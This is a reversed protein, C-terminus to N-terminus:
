FNVRFGFQFARPLGPAFSGSGLGYRNSRNRPTTGNISGAAGSLINTLRNGPPDYNGVNFVNFVELMPEIKVREGINIVRSIRIDTSSFSDLGVQDAPAPSIPNGANITAGLARLQDATFLGSSILAQAAPTFGGVQGNFAAILENLRKVDVDRSFSGRNTGPLPDQTTGDGNLDTFYIEGLGSAFPLIISSALPSSVRTIANLRINWPLDTLFSVSLQHTRDLNSPGFFQTPADNNITLSLSGVDPDAGSSKFRSLAYSVTTFMNKLPGHSGLRGRLNVTLANYSVIGVPAIVGMARFNPNNGQFAFGDLASGADLGFFAYDQIAAGQAIACNIAAATAAAPCGFADNTIAIADRAIAVNLTDAAGIRNLDVIQGFHIGRNRIFDVSLVLGSRIEHQAGINFQMGYPRKYDNYILGLNTTLIQNFLPPVGSPPFSAALNATVHQYVNQIRQAAAITNRLPQGILNVGGTCNGPTSNFHSVDFLCNGTAPDTLVPAGAFLVQVVNGLGPPLSLTRDFLQNNILNTDYFIGAGGRIVTKGSGWPDWAFGVQPAFADDPRHIFGGLVPDFEALKDTRRLDNNAINSDFNYRLGANISLRPNVKWVDQVYGAFRHNQYGGFPLGHTPIESSFGLGNGVAISTLPFNLPDGAGGNANAFSISSATFNSRIRPALGFFNGFGGIIIRNYAAGFRITHNGKVVSGDYKVQKNDQFTAQPANLNPGVQVTSIINVLIPNGAPDLTVPTGAAENADVVFNDFNLYSFRVSHTWRSASFDLGAVHSNTNNQNAFASLSNGGFGTVGRNDNHNFRYFAHLRDTITWDLRGGFLDEDLPVAFNGTFQPFAPVSTFQQGDQNNREYDLHWFLKNKVVFGGVRGGFIQRDFPPKELTPQTKNLRTDAAFRSDRFFGFGSGHIENSGSRTVINIAGSSTLDTSVDLGSRSVQFEQISENSLNATTTGVTEDTIDVGDVQIRTARGGRGGISVGVFQNKTVDFDGGDRTQVGPELQALDLFNRGNLPLNDIQRTTIVGDVTSRAYDVIAETDATVQIVASAEGIELHAELPTVSGVKVIVQKAVFTRFGSAEIAVEYEGPELNQFSFAGGENTTTTVEANTSVNRVKVHANTVSAGNPDVVRGELAGRIHQAIAAPTFLCIIIIALASELKLSNM